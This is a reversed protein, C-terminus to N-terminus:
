ECEFTVTAQGRALNDRDTDVAAVILRKGLSTCKADAADLAMRQARAISGRGFSSVFSTQYRDPGIQKPPYVTACGSLLALVIALGCLIVLTRPLASLESRKDSVSVFFGSQRHIADEVLQIHTTSSM